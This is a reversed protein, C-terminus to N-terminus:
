SVEFTGTPGPPWGLNVTLNLITGAGGMPVPNEFNASAILVPTGGGDDIWFGMVAESVTPTGDIGTFTSVGSLTVTGDVLTRPALTPTAAGYGSFACETFRGFVGLSDNDATYLHIDPASLIKGAAAAADLIAAIAAAVIDM